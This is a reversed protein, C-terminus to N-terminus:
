RRNEPASNKDREAPKEQTRTSSQMPTLRVALNPRRRMRIPRRGARGTGSTYRNSNPSAFEWDVTDGNAAVTTGGGSIFSDLTEAM